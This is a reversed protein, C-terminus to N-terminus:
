LELTKHEGMQELPDGTLISKAVKFLQVMKSDKIDWYEAHRVRVVLLALNPDEVGKPFWAAAAPTWLEKKQEMDDTFRAQGSVSVYSDDDTNSYSVNVEGDTLLGEYLEGDKPIFFFLQPKETLHSNLTTLPHAHLMGKSTRHTLMGFRIEKVLEWLTEHPTVPQSMPEGATLSRSM